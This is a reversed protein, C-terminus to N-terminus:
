VVWSFPPVCFAFAVDHYEHLNLKKRWGSAIRDWSYPGFWLSLRIRKQNGKGPVLVVVLGTMGFSRIYALM